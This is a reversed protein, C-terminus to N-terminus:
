DNGQRREHLWEGLEVLWIGLIAVLVLGTLPIGVIVVCMEVLDWFTVPYEKM